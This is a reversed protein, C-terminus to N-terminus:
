DGRPKPIRGGGSLSVSSATQHPARFPRTTILPIDSKLTGAISHIKTIELAETFSLDPLITPLRRALMTKGSGPSGILLCNHSGAASVELARKINEQGKVESFDFEYKQNIRFFNDIDIQIPEIKIKKNLFEIVQILNEVPIVEIGSVIGHKKLM